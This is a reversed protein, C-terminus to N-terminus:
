LGLFFHDIIQKSLLFANLTSSTIMTCDVFRILVITKTVGCVRREFLCMQKRGSAQAHTVPVKLESSVIQEKEHSYEPFFFIICLHLVFLRVRDSLCFVLIILIVMIVILVNKKMISLCLFHFHFCFWCKYHLIHSFWQQANQNKDLKLSLVLKNLYM